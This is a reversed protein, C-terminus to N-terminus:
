RFSRMTDSSKITSYRDKMNLFYKEFYFYSIYALFITTIFVTVYLIIYNYIATKDSFILSKSLYYILLPHIVYIGYSIKGIFDFFPIDLNIIRKSKEIQGIILFVSVISILENDIVSAIHFRNITVLAIILWSIFQSIFNNTLQLFLSNKEYYLIAGFAGILMCHFRTVHLTNYFLSVGGSQTKIEIIKTVLKLVILGVCIIFSTKMISKSKKVIWPWFSYFQEEVGLSWYHGVFPLMGGFVFPINSLMLVYFLISYKEYTIDFIIATLLSLILYLYYLPWIRLIRRVYFNKINIEGTKGEELLLYTILFGSLTFFISVGFGALLTTKPNGDAYKGFIFPDLGFDHLGQTIHSFVVALAAIARLGNLGSFFVRGKM